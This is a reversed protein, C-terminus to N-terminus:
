GVDDVDGKRGVEERRDGSSEDLEDALDREVDNQIHWLRRYLGPRDILDEHSGQQTVSGNEIVFVIDTQALTSLRHAILMTTRRGRRHRLADLIALETDTDVASLADDLVLVPPDKVLARALVIRQRQGGSLRVGREGVVTEYGDHFGAITEHVAADQAARVLRSEDVMRAEMGLEINERVSRSYLFPEQLVVSIRSRVDARRLDAIDVGDLRIRGSEPDYLRMLLAILTSKGAASPGLLGVTCGAPIMMSLNQLVPSAGFSFNVSEFDIRGLLPDPLARCRDPEPDVEEERDLIERIRGVAVMAKGMDSLIRGMQRVPWLLMQVYALFAFLEGITLRGEVVFWAGGLLVLGLQLMCILESLSWYQAMVRYVKLNWDRYDRNPGGFREIEYGARGFARVVRINTLNEQLTSTMRGEAEDSSKFVHKVKFFFYAAFIVLLPMLLLAVLTMAPNLWLMFPVVLVLLLVARGLEVGQAAFFTRVTEVDSTCRQVTDGTEAGQHYETPLRQLHDYLHDRLRRAIHESAEAAWRGKLYNLGGGVAVLTVLLLALLWVHDLVVGPGGLEILLRNDAGRDATVELTAFLADIVLAPILPEVFGVLTALMLAGIALGFRRRQGLTLQWLHRLGSTKM